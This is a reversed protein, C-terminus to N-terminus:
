FGFLEVQWPWPTAGIGLSDLIREEFSGNMVSNIAASTARRVSSLAAAFFM